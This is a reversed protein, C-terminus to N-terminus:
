NRTAADLSLKQLGCLFSILRLIINFSVNPAVAVFPASRICTVPLTRYSLWNQRVKRLAAENRAKHHTSSVQECSELM